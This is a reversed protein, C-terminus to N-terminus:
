LYGWASFGAEARRAGLVADGRPVLDGLGWCPLVCAAMAHRRLGEGSGPRRKLTRWPAPLGLVALMLNGLLVHGLM